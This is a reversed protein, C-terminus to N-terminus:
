KINAPNIYLYRDDLELNLKNVIGIIQKYEDSTIVVDYDAIHDCLTEFALISESHDIYELDFDVIDPALRGKLNEGLRRIDQNIDM